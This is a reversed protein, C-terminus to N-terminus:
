KRWTPEGKLALGIRFMQGRVEALCEQDGGPAALLDDASFRTAQSFDQLGLKNLFDATKESLEAPWFPPHAAKARAILAARHAIRSVKKDFFPKVETPAVRLSRGLKDLAQKFDALTIKGCNPIRLIERETLACLDSIKTWKEARVINRARTTDLELIEIDETERAARLKNITDEFWTIWGEREEATTIRNDLLDDLLHELNAWVLFGPDIKVPM